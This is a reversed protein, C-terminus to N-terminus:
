HTACATHDLVTAIIIITHEHWADGCAVRWVGRSARPAYRNVSRDAEAASTEYVRGYAEKWAAWAHATTTSERGAVTGTPVSVSLAWTHTLAAACLLTCLVHTPNSLPAM